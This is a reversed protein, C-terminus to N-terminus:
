HSQTWDYDFVRRVETHWDLAGDTWGAGPKGTQSNVVLAALSPEGREENQTSLHDLIHRAQNRLAIGQVDIAAGLEGYTLLTRRLAAVILAARARLVDPEWDKAM